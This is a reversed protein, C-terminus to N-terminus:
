IINIARETIKKLDQLVAEDTNLPLLWYISDGIARML